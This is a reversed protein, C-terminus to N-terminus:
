GARRAVASRPRRGAWTAKGPIYRFRRFATFTACWDVAPAVSRERGPQLRATGSAAASCQARAAALVLGPRRREGQDDTPTAYLVQHTDRDVTRLMGDKGATTILRRSAGNVTTNFMPTAHTVDWDHSDSPVMQRHWRLKGTRVDLVVLSNTYLNDGQRLFVPLDPAPNTVAVHLDGNATDVAFTTWVSGGGVPINAPNKWTESGPEGPKPITNFRWVPTGDALRFAGVWGQLNNESGAPGILVLDEFIVPAMTFTEGDAVNAVHRAWLFAGTEANLALLYGDPTRM